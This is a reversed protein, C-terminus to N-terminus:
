KKNLIEVAKDMQPDKNANYDEDTLDVEVDPTIGQENINYGKPTLWKAVTIKVSSGDQLDELTQVSGKGFTKKGVINAKGDDKLAGSVIESASASGQNVLVVTPFDKLRARGRSLYENKNEPSFQETVIVGSAIWESAVDVATDLYGGPNNRLDLIIGKPNLEVAKQAAQKFLGSTDDNFNSITIVFIKDDRMETKVSKVLIVQRTIKYDKPKEFGDRFITLTVETNKPGRILSVAEDVALDATSKGNIAYIRDGSKLGAKEAPMDALPAVITIMDNKKGIEAGIGEFTGALDNSFEKAVKPEMFVTYPDGVSDVLGKLAGYFMTKDTLKNQDVYKEKLLDWTQWFLNFDVDQTLKNAPATVYKNYISGAYDAEKLSLSKILESKQALLMGGGFAALLLVIILAALGIIKRASRKKIIPEPASTQFNDM